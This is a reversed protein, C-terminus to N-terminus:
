RSEEWSQRFLAGLEADTPKPPNKMAPSSKGVKTSGIGASATKAAQKQVRAVTKIARTTDASQASAESESRAAERWRPAISTLLTYPDTLRRERDTLTAKTRIWADFSAAETETLGNDNLWENIAISNDDSQPQAVPQQAPQYNASAENYGGRIDALLREADAKDVGEPSMAKELLQRARDRQSAFRMARSNLSEQSQRNRALAAELQEKYRGAEAEREALRTKLSAVDDQEAPEEAPAAEEAVPEAEAVEPEAVEETTSEAEAEAPESALSQRLAAALADDRDAAVAM